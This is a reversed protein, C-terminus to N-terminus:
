SVYAVGGLRRGNFADEPTIESGLAIQQALDALAATVLQITENQAPIQAAELDPCGFKVMGRTRVRVGDKAQSYQFGVHERIDVPWLADAIRRRVPSTFRSADIDFVVAKTLLAIRDILQSQFLVASCAKPRHVPTLLEVWIEFHSVACLAFDEATYGLEEKRPLWQHADTRCAERVTVRTIFGEANVAVFHGVEMRGDSEVLNFGEDIAAMEAEVAGCSADPNAVEALLPLHRSRAYLLATYRAEPCAL